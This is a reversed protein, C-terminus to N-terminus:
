KFLLELTELSKNIDGLEPNLEVIDLGILKKLNICGKIIKRVHKYSLGNSAITGTSDFYNGDLADVDFSIHINDSTQEIFELTQDVNYCKIKEKLIIEKEYDDVDRVGVYVLKAFELKQNINPDFWCKELGTAVGLPM